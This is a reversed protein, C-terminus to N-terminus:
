CNKMECVMRETIYYNVSQNVTQSLSHRFPELILLINSYSLLQGIYQDWSVFGEKM